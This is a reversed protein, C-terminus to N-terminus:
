SSIFKWLPQTYTHSLSIPIQLHWDPGVVVRQNYQVEVKDSLSLQSRSCFLMAPSFGCYAADCVCVCVLRLPQWVSSLKSLDRMIFFFLYGESDAYLTPIYLMKFLFPPFVSFLSREQFVSVCMNVVFIGEFWIQLTNQKHFDLSSKKVSFVIAEPMSTKLKDVHLTTDAKANLTYCQTRVLDSVVVNSYNILKSLLICCLTVFNWDILDYKINPKLGYSKM